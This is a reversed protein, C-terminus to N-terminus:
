YRYNSQFYDQYEGQQQYYKNWSQNHQAPKYPNRWQRTPQPRQHNTSPKRFKQNGRYAEKPAQRVPGKSKPLGFPEAKIGVPWDSIVQQLKGTPVRVKFAKDSKPNTPLEEIDTLKIPVKLEKTIHFHISKISCSEEVRGIFAYTKKLSAKVPEPTVEKTKKRQNKLKRTMHLMSTDTSSDTDSDYTKPNSSEIHVPKHQSPENFIELKRECTTLRLKLEQNKSMLSSNSQKIEILDVKTAKLDLQLQTIVSAILDPTSLDPTQEPDNKYVSDLNTAIRQNVVTDGLLLIDKIVTQKVIRNIPSKAAYAVHTEAVQKVLTDRLDKLIPLDRDHLIKPLDAISYEFFQKLNHSFTNAYHEDKIINLDALDTIVMTPAM